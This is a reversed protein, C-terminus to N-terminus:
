LWPPSFVAFFRTEGDNENSYRHLRDARFYISDGQNLIITREDRFEIALCAELVHVFEQLPGVERRNESRTWLPVNRTVCDSPLGEAEGPSDM